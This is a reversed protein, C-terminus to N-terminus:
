PKRALIYRFVAPVLCAGDAQVFTALAERYASAVAEPGVLRIVREAVGATMLARVGTPVDPYRFTAPVDAVVEPKLGQATILDRLTNERSLAFPGPAGPPPPPMLPRLAAVLTAAPMGEPPGWTLLVVAGGRRTVRMAERLARPVDAAYQFSNFGTVADFSDADFPLDELEGVRFDGAPLRERAIALLAASADLGSVAAGRAAALRAALGAGCGADLLKTGTGVALRDFVAAYCERSQGEQLDAWDRARVGWLEGNQTATGM